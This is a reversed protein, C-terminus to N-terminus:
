RIPPTRAAVDRGAPCVMMDVPEPTGPLCVPQVRCAGPAPTRRASPASGAAGDEPSTRATELTRLCAADVRGPMNSLQDHLEPPPARDMPNTVINSGEGGAILSAAVGALSLPQCAGLLLAAGLSLGSRHANM